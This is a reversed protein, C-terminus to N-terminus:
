KKLCIKVELMNYHYYNSILADSWTLLNHWALLATRYVYKNLLFKFIVRSHPFIWKPSYGLRIFTHGALYKRVLYASMRNLTYKVECINTIIAGHIEYWNRRLWSFPIFDGRFLIHLVGNGENTKVKAYDFRWAKKLRKKPKKRTWVERRIRQKLVGFHANLEAYSGGDATTLTMFRLREGFGMGRKMGSLFCNFVRKQKKSWSAVYQKRPSIHLYQDLNPQTQQSLVGESSPCSIDNNM